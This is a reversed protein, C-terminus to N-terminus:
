GAMGEPAAPPATAGRGSTAARGAPAVGGGPAPLWLRARRERSAAGRGGAAVEVVRGTLHGHGRGLGEWGASTVVLRLAVGEVLPPRDGCLVLVAQRERARAILRRAEGPRLPGAPWALVVDFADLLASVVTAWEGPPPLAVLPFRGLVVGLEAAAALGLAPAGVAACWSGAASAAAVLALALSTAGGCGSVAGVAVTAGRRLGPEPLLPALAPLVPLLREGALTVPRVAHGAPRAQGPHASSMAELTAFVHEGGDLPRQQVLHAM